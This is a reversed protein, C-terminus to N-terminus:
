EDIMKLLEETSLDKMVNLWGKEDTANGVFLSYRATNEKIIGSVDRATIKELEEPNTLRDRIIKQWLQVIELDADCIWLIRDDKTGTQALEKRVRNVTSAWKWVDDAIERATQLPDKLLSTAVKAINKEKDVRAM